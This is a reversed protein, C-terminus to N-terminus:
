ANEGNVAAWAADLWSQQPDTLIRPNGIGDLVVFRLTAGRAKKDVRMVAQLSAWDGAYRV